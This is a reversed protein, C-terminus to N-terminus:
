GSSVGLGVSVQLVLVCELQASGKPLTSFPVSFCTMRRACAGHLSSANQQTLARHNCQVVAAFGEFLHCSKKQLPALALGDARFENCKTNDCILYLIM